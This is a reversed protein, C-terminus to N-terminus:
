RLIFFAALSMRIQAALTAHPSAASIHETSINLLPHPLGQNLQPLL